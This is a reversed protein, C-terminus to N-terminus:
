WFSSRAIRSQCQREVQVRFIRRRGDV